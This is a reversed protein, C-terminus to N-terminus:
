HGYVEVYDLRFNHYDWYDNLILIDEWLSDGYGNQSENYFEYIKELENILLQIENSHGGRFPILTYKQQWDELNNLKKFEKFADKSLGIQLYVDTKIPM